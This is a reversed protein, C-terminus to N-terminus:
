VVSHVIVSLRYAIEVMPVLASLYAPLHGLTVAVMEALALCLHVPLRQFSVVSQTIGNMIGKFVDHCFGGRPLLDFRHKCPLTDGDVVLVTASCIFHLTNGKFLVAH